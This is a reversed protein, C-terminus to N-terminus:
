RSVRKKRYKHVAIGISIFLALAIVVIGRDKDLFHKDIPPLYSLVLLSSIFIILAAVEFAVCSFTKRGLLDGAKSSFLSGILFLTLFLAMTIAFVCHSPM